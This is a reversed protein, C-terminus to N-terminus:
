IYERSLMKTYTASGLQLTSSRPADQEDPTPINLESAVREALSGSRPSDVEAEDPVSNGRKPQKPHNSGLSGHLKVPHLLDSQTGPSAGERPALVAGTMGAHRTM